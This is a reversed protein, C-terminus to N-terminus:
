DNPRNAPILYNILILGVKEDGSLSDYDEPNQEAALARGTSMM